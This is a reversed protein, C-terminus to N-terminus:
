TRAAKKKTVTRVVLAVAIIVLLGYAAFQYRMVLSELREANGGLAYGVTMLLSNWALASVAGLGMVKWFPLRGAGAAVFLLSRVGPIFRNGAVLWWGAKSHMRDRVEFLKQHSIFLFKGSPDREARKGLWQGVAYNVAAGGVSGITIALLVLPWPQQGRVAYVGGLLMVTDGPFPPFLYELFAAGALVLFAEPGMVAILSDLREVMSLVGYGRGM